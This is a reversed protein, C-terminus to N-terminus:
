ACKKHRIVNKLMQKIVRWNDALSIQFDIIKRTDTIVNQQVQDVTTLAIIFHTMANRKLFILAKKVAM